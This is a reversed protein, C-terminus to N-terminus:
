SLADRLRFINRGPASFNNFNRPWLRAGNRGRRRSGVIKQFIVSNLSTSTAGARYDRELFEEEGAECLEWLRSFYISSLLRFKGEDM